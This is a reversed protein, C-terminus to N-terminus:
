GNMCMAIGVGNDFRFWLVENQVIRWQVVGLANLFSVIRGAFKIGKIRRSPGMSDKGSGGCGSCSAEGSGVYGDGNCRKCEIEQGCEPCEDDGTGDCDPCGVRGEGTGDCVGCDDATDTDSIEWPINGPTADNGDDHKALM